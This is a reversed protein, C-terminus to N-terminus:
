CCRTSATFAFINMLRQRLKWSLRQKESAMALSEPRGSGVTRLVNLGICLTPTTNKGADKWAGNEVKLIIQEGNRTTTGGFLMTKGTDLESDSGFKKGTSTCIRKTERSKLNAPKKQILLSGSPLGPMAKNELRKVIRTGGYRAHQTTIPGTGIAGDEKHQQPRSQTEKM